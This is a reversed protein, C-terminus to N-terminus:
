LDVNKICVSTLTRKNTNLQTTGNTLYTCAVLQWSMYDLSFHRKENRVVTKSLVTVCYSLMAYLYLHM